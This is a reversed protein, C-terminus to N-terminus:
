VTVVFDPRFGTPEKPYGRPNCVIRTGSVVYDFVTHTHGHIWLPARGM